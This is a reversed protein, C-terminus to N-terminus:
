DMEPSFWFYDVLDGNRDTPYRYTPDVGTDIMAVNVAEETLETGPRVSGCTNPNYQSMMEALKAEVGSSLRPKGDNRPTPPQSAPCSKSAVESALEAENFPKLDINYNFGAAQIAGKNDERTQSKGKAIGNNIDVGEPTQAQMLFIAKDCKCTDVPLLSDITSLASDYLFNNLDAVLAAHGILLTDRADPVYAGQPSRLQQYEAATLNLWNISFNDKPNLSPYGYLTDPPGLLDFTDLGPYVQVIVETLTDKTEPDVEQVLPTKPCNEWDICVPVDPPFCSARTFLFFAALPTLWFLISRKKM